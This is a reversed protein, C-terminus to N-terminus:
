SLRAHTKPPPLFVGFVRYSIESLTRAACEPTIGHPARVGAGRAHTRTRGPWKRTGVKGGKEGFELQAGAALNAARALWSAVKVRTTKQLAYFVLIASKIYQVAGQLAHQLTISGRKHKTSSRPPARFQTRFDRRRRRERHKRPPKHFLASRLSRAVGSTSCSPEGSFAAAIAAPIFLICSNESFTSVCPLGTGNHACLRRRRQQQPQTGLWASRLQADSFKQPGSPEELGRGQGM